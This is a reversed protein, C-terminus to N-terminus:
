QGFFPKALDGGRAYGRSEWYGRYLADDSLEIETVWKCWKYGWKDEAVVMFPFGREPPIEIGNMGYALLIRRDRVYSLPLSTTYGDAAHFIVTVAGPKPSSRAILDSLLVGQWLVKVSWGEVCDIQVVKTHTTEQTLVEDYTYTAPTSVAGDVSLRYAVRDVDQPGNISNERFDSIPDLRQGQYESIEVTGLHKPPEGTGGPGDAAPSAGRSCAAVILTAAVALLPVLLRKPRAPDRRVSM